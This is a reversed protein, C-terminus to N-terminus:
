GHRARWTAIGRPVCSCLRSERAADEEAGRRRQKQKNTPQQFRGNSDDVNREAQVRSRRQSGCMVRTAVEQREDMWGDKRGDMTQIDKRKRKMAFDQTQFCCLNERDIMKLAGNDNNNSIHHSMILDYKYKKSFNYPFM